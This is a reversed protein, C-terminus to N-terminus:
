LKKVYIDKYFVTSGPDHGQLAFTGSSLKRTGEVSDPETYDTIVQDNISIVIHKGDVKIYYDMWEDDPFTTETNDDVGYLSATRRPDVDYSNNVQAEYGHSPWGKEQYETHIFIGSNSHAKTMVKAKFEFDKFDHDPGDYFLHSREGNVKIMGDEITFTEPHENKKWGDFSEGDFLSEWQPESKTLPEQATKKNCATTIVVFSTIVLLIKKM